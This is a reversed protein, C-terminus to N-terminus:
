VSQVGDAAAVAYFPSLDDDLRLMSRLIPVVEDARAKGDVRAHGRRGPALTVTRARGRGVALTV